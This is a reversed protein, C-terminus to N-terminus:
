IGRKQKARRMHERLLEFQQDYDGTAKARYLEEVVESRQRLEELRALKEFNKELVSKADEPCELRPATLRAAAFSRLSPSLKALVEDLAGFTSGNWSQRVAAVAAAVDGELQEVGAVFEPTDFVQPYDLLAGFIELSVESRRDRCRAASPSAGLAAPPGARDRIAERVQRALAQFTRADSVGLREAIRDAHQEALARVSRDPESSLLDIVEQIKAARAKADDRTFSADLSTDILYELIGRSALLLSSLAEPGSARIFDDPDTNEPLIAVRATLSTDDCTLRAARIARRGASDADFLLILDTSFRKIQRAQEPTFATGLPAVAQSLGRAHLSVVDFNGEVLVCANGNRLSQRAQYLGFVVERKRYIPSEPSNLYKAPTETTEASPAPLRLEVLRDSDPPPLARGSFAVVRGQLDLVAFMLRHRFRDYHGPGGKRPVLLGVEEAAAVSVGQQRLHDSLGSWGYPAYGVRFAQLAHAIAGTPGTAILERRSLEAEALDRLAHERLMREFYAAAATSVEYLLEQRRRKERHVRQDETSSDDVLAVGVREALREIAERFSMGETEQVFRFVDGTVGCGFCHYIGREDNVHFSPTKEKHFPCLGIHSRGRKQLKVSEGILTVIGTLERIRDITEKGIVGNSM